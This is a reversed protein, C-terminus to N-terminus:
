NCKTDTNTDTDTDTIYVDETQKAANIMETATIKVFDDWV